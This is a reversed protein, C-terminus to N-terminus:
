DNQHRCMPGDIIGLGEDASLRMVDDKFSSLLAEVLPQGPLAPLWQIRRM